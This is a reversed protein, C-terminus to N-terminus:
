EEVWKICEEEFNCCVYYKPCYVEPNCYYGEACVSVSCGYSSELESVMDCGQPFHDKYVSCEQTPKTDWEVCTKKHEQTILSIILIGMFLGVLLGIYTSFWGTEDM